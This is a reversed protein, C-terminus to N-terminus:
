EPQTCARSRKTVHPLTHRLANEDAIDMPKHVHLCINILIGANHEDSEVSREDSSCEEEPCAPGSDDDLQLAWRALLWERNEDSSGFLCASSVCAFSPITEDLLLALGRSAM